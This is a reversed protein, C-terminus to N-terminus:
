RAGYCLGEFLGVSYSFLLKANTGIGTRVMVGRKLYTVLRHSSFGRVPVKPNHARCKLIRYDWRNIFLAKRERIEDDRDWDHQTADCVSDSLKTLLIM